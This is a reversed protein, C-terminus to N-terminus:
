KGLRERTEIWTEIEDLTVYDSGCKYQKRKEELTLKEYYVQEVVVFSYYERNQKNYFPRFSGCESKM